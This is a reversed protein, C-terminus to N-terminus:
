RWNLFYNDLENHNSDDAESNYTTINDSTNSPLSVELWHTIGISYVLKDDPHEVFEFQNTVYVRRWDTGDTILIWTGIKPLNDNTLKQWKM